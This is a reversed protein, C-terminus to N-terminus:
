IHRRTRKVDKILEECKWNLAPRIIGKRKLNIIPGDARTDEVELSLVGGLSVLNKVAPIGANISIIYSGSNLLNAPVTCRSMYSGPERRGLYLPNDSDYAEFVIAGHLATLSFGVRCYPLPKKIEYEIEISFSKQADVISATQNNENLVRIALLKFEDVEPNAVGDKWTQEGISSKSTMQTLYYSVVEETRGITAIKGKDLCIAKGCLKNVAGMNHSVFLVTRGEGAVDGMKGLCKRQFAADGVALVEDVLAVSFALRVRMGVSYRKVPTDIFKEVEAFSVIEDFKKKIEQRTMGLIAGNMYVNEKGTLEPHFGTGVELLSAVRGRMRIEGETPDTIQTLIKLLTTKGAGNAGIIGLIEGEEVDFSIDKLAWFYKSNSSGNRQDHREKKRLPAKLVEM